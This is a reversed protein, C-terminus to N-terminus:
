TLTIINSSRIQRKFEVCITPLLATGKASADAFIYLPAEFSVLYIVPKKELM